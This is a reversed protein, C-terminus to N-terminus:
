YSRTRDPRPTTLICQQVPTTMHAPTDNLQINVTRTQDVPAPGRGSLALETAAVRRARGGRRSGEREEVQQGPGADEATPGM